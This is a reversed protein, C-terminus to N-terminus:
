LTCLSSCCKWSILCESFLPPFHHDICLHDESGCNFCRHGFIEMTISEDQVTYNENLEARLARRKRVSARIKEPNEKRYRRHAEKVREPYRENCRKAAEKAKEPDKDYHKRKLLRDRERNNEVWKKHTPYGRGPNEKRFAKQQNNTCEKCIPRLGCKKSKDKYYDAESRSM